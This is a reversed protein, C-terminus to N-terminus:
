NCRCRPCFSGRHLYLHIRGCARKQGRYVDRGVRAFLVLACSRRPRTQELNEEVIVSVLKKCCSEGSRRAFTSRRTYAGLLPSALRLSNPAAVSASDTRSKRGGM